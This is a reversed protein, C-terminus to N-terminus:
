VGEKRLPFFDYKREHKIREVIRHPVKPFALPLKMVKERNGTVKKGDTGM